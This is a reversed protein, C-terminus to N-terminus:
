EIGIIEATSVADNFLTFAVLQNTLILRKFEHLPMPCSVLLVEM